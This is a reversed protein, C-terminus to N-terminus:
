REERRESKRSQHANRSIRGTHIAAYAGSFARASGGGSAAGAYGADGEGAQAFAFSGSMALAAALAITTRKM